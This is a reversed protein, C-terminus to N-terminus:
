HTIILLVTRQNIFPARDPTSRVTPSGSSRIVLEPSISDRTGILLRANINGRYDRGVFKTRRKSERVHCEHRSGHDLYIKM